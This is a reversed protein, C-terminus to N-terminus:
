RIRSEVEPDTNAGAPFFYNQGLVEERTYGCLDAFAQNVYVIPNGEVTPDTVVMPMRTAEVAAVLPGGRGQFDEVWRGGKRSRPLHGQDAADAYVGRRLSGRAGQGPHTINFLWKPKGPYCLNTSELLWGFHIVLWFTFQLKM